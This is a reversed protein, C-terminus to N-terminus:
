DAGSIAQAYPVDDITQVHDGTILDENIALTVTKKGVLNLIYANRMLDAVEQDTKEEGKYFDATLDLQKDGEEFKKGLLETDCVAVMMRNNDTKHIKVIM